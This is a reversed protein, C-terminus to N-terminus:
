KIIAAVLVEPWAALMSERFCNAARFNSKRSLGGERWSRKGDPAALACLLGMKKQMGM